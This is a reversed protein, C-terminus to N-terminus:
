APQTMWDVSPGVRRTAAEQPRQGSLRAESYARSVKPVEGRRTPAEFIWGRDTLWACMRKPQKTGTLDRLDDPTLLLTM